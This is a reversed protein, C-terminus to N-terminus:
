IRLDFEGEVPTMNDAYIFYKFKFNDGSKLTTSGQLKFLTVESKPHIPTKYGDKYAIFYGREGKYERLTECNSIKYFDYDTPTFSNSLMNIVLYPNNATVEGDNYLRIDIFMSDVCVAKFSLKPRLRRHFLDEVISLDMSQFTNGARIYFKYDILSRHPPNQSQPIYIAMLGKDEEIPIAKYEVGVVNREVKRTELERLKDEFNKLNNIPQIGSIIDISNEKDKKAILGFVLVGGSTNAFGSLSKVFNEKDDESIENSKPLTKRKCELWMSEFEKNLVEKEIYNKNIKEFLTKANSM